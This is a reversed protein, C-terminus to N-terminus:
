KMEIIEHNAIAFIRNNKTKDVLDLGTFRGFAPLIAFKHAFYFCPLRLSQRAKSKICIGPHMHGSILYHAAHEHPHHSFVFPQLFYTSSTKLGADKTMFGPIIDHNGRVLITELGPYQQLMGAFLEWEHNHSSHFLDGVIMWKKPAEKQLISQMRNLEEQILATPAAIGHKRFHSVKGLHLDSMVLMSKRSWLLYKDPSLKMVEENLLMEM